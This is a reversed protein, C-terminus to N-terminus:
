LNFIHCNPSFLFHLSCVKSECTVCNYYYKDGDPCTHESWDCELDETDFSQPETLSAISTGDSNKQTSGEKPSQLSAYISM